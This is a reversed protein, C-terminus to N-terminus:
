IDERERDCITKQCNCAEESTIKLIIVWWEMTMNWVNFNYQEHERDDRHIHKQFIYFSIEILYFFIKIGKEDCLNDKIGTNEIHYDLFM